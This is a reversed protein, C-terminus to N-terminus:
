PRKLPPPAPITFKLEESSWAAKKEGSGLSGKVRLRYNGPALGILPAKVPLPAEGNWGDKWPADVFVLELPVTKSEAVGGGAALRELAVVPAEQVLGGAARLHLWFALENPRLEVDRLAAAVGPPCKSVESWRPGPVIKSAAWGLEQRFPGTAKLYAAVVADAHRAGGLRGLAEAAALRVVESEDALLSAAADAGKSASAGLLALARARDGALAERDNAREILLKEGEASDFVAVRPRLLEGHISAYLKIARWAIGPDNTEIMWDFVALSVEEWGGPSEDTGEGTWCGLASRNRGIWGELAAAKKQNPRLARWRRLRDVEAVDRRARAVLEPWRSPLDRVKGNGGLGMVRGDETVLRLGLLKGKGDLFLLGQEFLRPRPKGDGDPAPPDFARVVEPRLGIDIEPTSTGRIVERVRFRVPSAADSPVAFAIVEARICLARLSPPDDVGALPLLLLVITL